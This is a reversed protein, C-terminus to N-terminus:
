GKRTWMREMRAPVAAGNLVLAPRMRTRSWTHQIAEFSADGETSCPTATSVLRRVTDRQCRSVNVLQVWAWRDPLLGSSCRQGRRVVLRRHEGPPWSINMRHNSRVRVDPTSRLRSSTVASDRPPYHGESVPREVRPASSGM